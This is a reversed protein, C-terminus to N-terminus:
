ARWYDTKLLVKFSSDPFFGAILYTRYILMGGSSMNTLDPNEGFRQSGHSSLAPYDPPATITTCNVLGPTPSMIVGPTWTWCAVTASAAIGKKIKEAPIQAFCCGAQGYPESFSACFGHCNRAPFMFYRRTPSYGTM